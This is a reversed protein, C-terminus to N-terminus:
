ISPKVSPAILFAKLEEIGIFTSNRASYGSKKAQPM